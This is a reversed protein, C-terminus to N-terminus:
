VVQVLLNMGQHLTCYLYFTGATTFPGITTSSGVGLVTAHVTPAGPETMPHQITGIWSGDAIIHEDSSAQILTLPQGKPITVSSQLFTTPGMLVTSVGPTPRLTLAAQPTEMPLLTAFALVGACVCFLLIWFFPRVRM